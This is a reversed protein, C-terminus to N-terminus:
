IKPNYPTPVLLLDNKRVLSLGFAEEMDLEEAKKGGPLEWDFHYLLNGIVNEMSRMGFNIGPCVRRGGGFPIYADKCEAAKAADEFREPRFSDADEWYSQDRMIAWANLIVRSNAPITYGDLQMTQECHRPVLFPAPPHLRMTEKLVMNLYPLNITDKEEIKPKGNLATRLEQQLKHTVRPHRIIESMGWAM